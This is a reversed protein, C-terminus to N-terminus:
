YYEQLVNHLAITPKFNDDCETSDGYCSTLAWFIGMCRIFELYSAESTSRGFLTNLFFFM